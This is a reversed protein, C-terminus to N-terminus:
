IVKTPIISCESSGVGYRIFNTTHLLNLKNDFESVLRLLEAKDWDSLDKALRIMNPIARVINDVITITSSQSTRSLPNLDISIVKKGSNILAGARDGDELGLLVTDACGIGKDDVFKRNSSIGDILFQPDTQIGLVCKAGNERLMNGIIRSRKKSRHYLNVELKANVVTSLEVIDKCCLAAVNGNVSIVPNNSLLLLSCAVKEAHIASNITHEGLLYDFAEGRGHALLGHPVVIGKKLGDVLKERISLSLFRPHGKPVNKAM